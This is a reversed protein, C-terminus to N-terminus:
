TKDGKLARTGKSDLPVGAAQKYVWIIRHFATWNTLVAVIVIVASLVIGDWMLGFVLSGLGLLVVREARQMLGVNCELGMTEAKARTYSIMMSGGMALLIAYIMGIDTISQQYQNYLSLLGLYMVVESIRDLVSDYFAGFKSVMGRLRAVRGDFIDHAGGLLVFSGAWRVHDQSYMIGAVVTMVFGSTTIANPHVKWRILAQTIPEIIPYVRDKLDDLNKGM